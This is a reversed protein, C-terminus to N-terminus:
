RAGLTGDDEDGEFVIGSLDDAGAEKGVTGIEGSDVDEGGKVVDGFAGGVGSEEEIEFMVTGEFACQRGEAIALEDDEVGDGGEEGVGVDAVVEDDAFGEGREEMEGLAVAGRDEEEVVEAGAVAAVGVLADEAAGGEGGDGAVDPVEEAVGLVFRAAEEEGAFGVEGGFM